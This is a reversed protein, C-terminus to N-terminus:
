RRLKRILPKLAPIENADHGSPPERVFAWQTGTWHVNAYRAHQGEDLYVAVGDGLPAGPARVWAVVARIDSGVVILDGIAMKPRDAMTYREMERRKLIGDRAMHRLTDALDKESRLAQRVQALSM